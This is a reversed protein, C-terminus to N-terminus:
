KKGTHCTSCKAVANDVTDEGGDCLRVIHHIETNRTTLEVGCECKYGHKSLLTNQEKPTWQHRSPHMIELRLRDCVQSISEGKYVLQKGKKLQLMESAKDFHKADIRLRTPSRPYCFHPLAAGERAINYTQRAISWIHVPCNCEQERAIRKM